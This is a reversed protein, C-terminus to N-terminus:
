ARTTSAADHPRPPATGTADSCAGLAPPVSTYASGDSGADTVGRPAAPSGAASATSRLTKAPRTSTSGCVSRTTGEIARLQDAEGAPYAANSAAGTPAPGNWTALQVCLSWPGPWAGM